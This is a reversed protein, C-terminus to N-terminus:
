NLRLKLFKRRMKEGPRFLLAIAFNRSATFFTRLPNWDWSGAFLENDADADSFDASSSIIQNKERFIHTEKTREENGWENGMNIPIGYNIGGGGGPFSKGRIGGPTSGLLIILFIILLARFLERHGGQRKQYITNVVALFGRGLCCICYLLLVVKKIYKYIPQLSINGPKSLGGRRLWGRVWIWGRIWIWGWQKSWLASRININRGGFSIIGFACSKRKHSTWQIWIRSYRCPHM